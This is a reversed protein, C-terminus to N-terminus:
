ERPALQWLGLQYRLWGNEWFSVDGGSNLLIQHAEIVVDIAGEHTPQGRLVTEVLHIATVPEGSVLRARAREVVAGPGVLDVLDAFAAGAELPYLETTSRLHFWGMYTEWITRVGWAVTGYGEGVRLSAPLRVERMLTTVDKGENMGALTEHHM